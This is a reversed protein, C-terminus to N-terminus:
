LSQIKNRNNCIRIGEIVTNIDYSHGLTGVYGIWLQDDKRHEKYKSVANEFVKGDNGLYVSLGSQLKSNVSLIRNIYTESVAIALNASSYIKDVYWKMPLFAQQLVKNTIAMKFAEPWLDQLDVIFKIQNQKCYKSVNYAATM